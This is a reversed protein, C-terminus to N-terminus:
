CSLAALMERAVAACHTGRPQALARRRYLHRHVPGTCFNSRRCDLERRRVIPALCLSLPARTRRKRHSETKRALAPLVMPQSTV